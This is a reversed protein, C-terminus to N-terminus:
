AIGHREVSTSCAEAGQMCTTWERPRNCRRGQRGLGFALPLSSSWPYSAPMILMLEYVSNPAALVNEPARLGLSGGTPRLGHKSTSKALLRLLNIPLVGSASSCIVDFAAGQDATPCAAPLLKSSSAADM